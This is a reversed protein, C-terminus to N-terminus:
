TLSDRIWELYIKVSDAASRQIQRRLLAGAAGGIYGSIARSGAVAYFGNGDAADYLGIVLVGTDFYRSAYLNKDAIWIEDPHPKYVILHHLSIIQVSGAPTAAWYFLQDSAPLSASPYREIFTLLDPSLATLTAAKAALQRVTGANGKQIYDTLEGLLMRHFVDNADAGGTRQLEAIAGSTVRMACKEATCQKLADLDKADLTVGSFSAASPPQAIPQAVGLEASRRFHGINKIWDALREKKGPLRIAGVAALEDGDVNVKVVPQGERAQGIEKATFQLHDALVREPDLRAPQTSLLAAAITLCCLTRM